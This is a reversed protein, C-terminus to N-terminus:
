QRVFIYILTGTNFAVGLLHRWAIPVEAGSILYEQAFYDFDLFWGQLMSREAPFGLEEDPQKVFSHNSQEQGLHDFRWFGEWFPKEGQLASRSHRTNRSTFYKSYELVPSWLVRVQCTRVRTSADTYRILYGTAEVVTNIVRKGRRHGRRPKYVPDVEENL